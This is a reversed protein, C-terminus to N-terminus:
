SEGYGSNIFYNQCEDPSFAYLATGLAKWLSERDRPEAARILSKLKAFVQEIPNFDPSYPPLFLLTAGVANIASEISSRKHSSLNDLIVIDGQKLTPLLIQRVYEYFSEADIPGDLVCPARIGDFCLAAVFTTTAWHGHPVKAVVREGRRARGFRRSM